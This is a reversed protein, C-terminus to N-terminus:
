RAVIETVTIDNATSSTPYSSSSFDFSHLNKEIFFAPQKPTPLAGENGLALVVSSMSPRDEPSQQVCSLGVEISRLVELLNSSETLTTDLLEM